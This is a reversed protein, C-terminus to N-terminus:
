AMGTEQNYQALKDTIVKFWDDPAPNKEGWPHTLGSSVNIRVISPDYGADRLTNSVQKASGGQGGVGPILLPIQDITEMNFRAIKSLQGLDPAGVVAGLGPYRGANNRIWESVKMYVKKGGVIDLMEFDKAGPNSTLNLVYVGRNESIGMQLGCYEAFPVMSDEGMYPSITVADAKWVKFGVEAYNASSKGIDGRKFDMIIPMGPFEEEILNMVQGMTELGIFDGERGHGYKEYFGFNPKFAGPYVKQQKMHYFLTRLMHLFGIIGLHHFKKHLAQLVPDLGFSINSQYVEFAKKLQETYNVNSKM